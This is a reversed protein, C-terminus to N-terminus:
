TLMTHWCKANQQEPHSERVKIGDMCIKACRMAVDVRTPPDLPGVSAAMSLLECVKKTRNHTNIAIMSEGDKNRLPNFKLNSVSTREWRPKDGQEGGYCNPGEGWRCRLHGESEEACYGALKLLLEVYLHALKKHRNFVNLAEDCLAFVVEPLTQKGTNTGQKKSPDERALAM